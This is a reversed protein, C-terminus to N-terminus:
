EDELSPEMESECRLDDDMDWESDWAMRKDKEVEELAEIAWACWGGFEYLVSEEWGYFDSESLGIQRILQYLENSMQKELESPSCGDRRLEYHRDQITRLRETEQPKRQAISEQIGILALRLNQIIVPLENPNNLAGYCNLQKQMQNFNGALKSLELWAEKNIAPVQPPLEAEMAARRLFEGRTMGGRQSDIRTLEQDTLRCSVPHKRKNENTKMNRRNM